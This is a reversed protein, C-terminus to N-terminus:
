YCSVTMVDIKGQAIVLGGRIKPVLKSGDEAAKELVEAISKCRSYTIERSSSKLCGKYSTILGLEEEFELSTLVQEKHTYEHHKGNGAEGPTIPGKRASPPSTVPSNAVYTQSTKPLPQKSSGGGM